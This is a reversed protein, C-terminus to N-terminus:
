KIRKLFPGLKNLDDALKALNHKQLFGWLKMPVYDKIDYNDYGNNVLDRIRQPIFNFDIIKKNREYAKKIDASSKLFVDLGENVHKQATKLGTGKRVSPINDSSDSMLLKIQLDKTPNISEMNCKKIPNYLDVNGNKLLQLFDKDTSIVTVKESKDFREKTLVAIIDDAECEYIKMLYFNGLAKKMEPMFDDLVKFFAPFDITSKKRGEKRQAKYESYIEKRWLKPSDFAMIVKSPEFQKVSSFVNNIFLHKWYNFELDDPVKINAIALTRYVLNNMDIILVNEGDVTANDEFFESLNSKEFM